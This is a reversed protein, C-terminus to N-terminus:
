EIRNRAAERFLYQVVGSWILKEDFSSFQDCMGNSVGTTGDGDQSGRDFHQEVISDYQKAQTGGGGHETVTGFVIVV